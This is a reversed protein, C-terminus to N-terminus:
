ICLNPHLLVSVCYTQVGEDYYYLYKVHALRNIVLSFCLFILLLSLLNSLIFPASVYSCWFFYLYFDDLIPPSCEILYCGLLHQESLSLFSVCVM